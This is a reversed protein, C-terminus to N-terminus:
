SHPEHRHGIGRKILIYNVPWAALFGVLLSVVMGMWFIGDSLHADMVGPISLAALMEFTEMVGISLGEAVLVMRAARAMPYGAKKLPVIGLLLGGVLGLLLSVVISTGNGLALTASLIM